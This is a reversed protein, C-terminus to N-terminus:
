PFHQGDGGARFWGGRPSIHECFSSVFAIKTWLTFVEKNYVHQACIYMLIWDENTWHRGLYTGPSVIFALVFNINKNQVKHKCGQSQM